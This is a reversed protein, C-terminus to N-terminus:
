CGCREIRALARDIQRILGAKQSTPAEQLEEQLAELQVQLAECNCALEADGRTRSSSRDVDLRRVRGGIRLAQRLHDAALMQAGPKLYMRFVRSTKGCCPTLAETPEVELDQKRLRIAHDCACRGAVFPTILVLDSDGPVPAMTGLFSADLREQDRLHQDIATTVISEM